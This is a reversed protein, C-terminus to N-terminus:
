ISIRKKGFMDDINIPAIYEPEEEPEEYIPEEEPEENKPNYFIPDIIVEKIKVGIVKIPKHSKTLNPPINYLNIIYDYFPERTIPYNYQKVRNWLTSLPITLSKIIEKYKHKPTISQNPLEIKEFLNNFVDKVNWVKKEPKSSVKKIVVDRLKRNHSRYAKNYAIMFEETFQIATIHEILEM